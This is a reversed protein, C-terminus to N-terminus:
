VVSRAGGPVTLRAAYFYGPLANGCMRVYSELRTVYRWWREAVVCFLDNKTMSLLVNLQAVHLLHRRLSAFRRFGSPAALLSEYSWSATDYCPLYKELTALSQDYVAELEPSRAIRILDFLGWLAYIWGSLVHSPRLGAADEFFRDDGSGWAVGGQRVDVTLPVVASLARDLYIADLSEEYARLLLSIAQGQAAASRFGAECGYQSSGCPFAYSGAVGDIESQANAAWKAQTLFRERAREDGRRRWRAHQELGFQLILDPRRLHGLLPVGAADFEAVQTSESFSIYYPGLHESREDFLRYSRERRLLSLLGGRM